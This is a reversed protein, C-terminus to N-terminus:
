HVFAGILKGFGNGVVMAANVKERFVNGPHPLIATVGTRVNDGEMLTVHGVRVGHVDTIANHPGTSFPGIRIGLERARPRSDTM